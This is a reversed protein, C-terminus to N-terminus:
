PCNRPSCAIGPRNLGSVLVDKFIVVKRFIAFLNGFIVAPIWILLIAAGPTIRCFCGPPVAIDTVQWKCTYQVTSIYVTFSVIKAPNKHESIEHKVIIQFILFVGFITM